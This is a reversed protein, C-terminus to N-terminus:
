FHPSKKFFKEPFPSGFHFYDSRCHQKQKKDNGAAHYYAKEDFDFSGTLPNVIPEPEPEEVAPEADKKPESASKKCATVGFACVFILLMIIGATLKRTTM